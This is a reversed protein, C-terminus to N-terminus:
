KYIELDYTNPSILREKIKYDFSQAARYTKQKDHFFKYTTLSYANYESFSEEGSSYEIRQILIRSADLNLLHLLCDHANPLVDCLANAVM